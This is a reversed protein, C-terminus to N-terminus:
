PQRIIAIDVVFERANNPFVTSAGIHDECRQHGRRPDVGSQREGGCSWVSTIAKEMQRCIGECFRARSSPATPNSGRRPRGYNRRGENPRPYERRAYGVEVIAVYRQMAGLAKQRPM